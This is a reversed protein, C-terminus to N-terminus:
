GQKTFRLADGIPVSRLFARHRFSFTGWDTKLPAAGPDPLLALRAREIDGLFSSVQHASSMFRPLDSSNIVPRVIDLARLEPM